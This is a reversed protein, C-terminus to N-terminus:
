VALADGLQTRSAIRLKRFANSLHMEVTRPTVFLAQAIERNTLGESAMAAIRRESPTLSAAGSIAATRPKAGAAILEEHARTALASAGCRQALDLGARLRDRAEIRKRARRLASGVEVLSHARELLAPSSELALVSDRLSRLGAEGGETLGLVRLARGIPRPAGWRRAHALEQSALRRAETADGTALLARAAESRWPM